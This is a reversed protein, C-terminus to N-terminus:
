ASTFYEDDDEPISALSTRVRSSDVRGATNKKNGRPSTKTSTPFTAMFRGVSPRKCTEAGLRLCEESADTFISCADDGDDMSGGVGEDDELRDSVKGFFPSVPSNCSQKAEPATPFFQSDRSPLRKMNGILSTGMYPRRQRTPTSQAVSLNAIQAEKSRRFDFSNVGTGFQGTPSHQHTQETFQFAHPYARQMDRSAVMWVRISFAPIGRMPKKTPVTAAQFELSLVQWSRSADYEATRRIAVVHTMDRLAKDVVFYYVGLCQFAYLM